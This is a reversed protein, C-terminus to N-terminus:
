NKTAEPPQPVVAPVSEAIDGTEGRVQGGSSQKVPQQQVKEENECNMCVEDAYAPTCSVAFGMFGGLSRLKQAHEDCAPTDKGPWHVIQTAQKM